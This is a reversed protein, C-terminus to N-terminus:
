KHKRKTNNDNKEKNERHFQIIFNFIKKNSDYRYATLLPIRYKPLKM